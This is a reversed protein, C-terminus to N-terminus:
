DTYNSSEFENPIHLQKVPRTTGSMKFPTTDKNEPDLQGRMMYIIQLVSSNFISYAYKTNTCDSANCFITASVNVLIHQVFIGVKSLFSSAGDCAYVKM